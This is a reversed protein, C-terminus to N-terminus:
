LDTYLVSAEIAKNDIENPNSFDIDAELDKMKSMRYPDCEKRFQGYWFNDLNDEM